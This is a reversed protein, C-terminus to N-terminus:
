DDEAFRRRTHATQRLKVLMHDLAEEETEFTRFTTQVVMARDITLYVAWDRERRELVVADEKISQEDLFVADILCEEKISTKLETRNM